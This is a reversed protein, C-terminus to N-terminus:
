RIKRTRDLVTARDLVGDPAVWSREECAHCSTFSVPTGDTLVLALSTVRLSGCSACVAGARAGPQTLSGLAVPVSQRVARSRRGSRTSGSSRARKPQAPGTSTEAVDASRDAPSGDTEPRAVAVNRAPM